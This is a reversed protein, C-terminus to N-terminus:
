RWPCTDNPRRPIADLHLLSEDGYHIAQHTDFCVCVVNEPDFLNDSKNKLDDITLPNLHHIFIKGSINYGDMGLDCANDRIIIDRRFDKWERSLYLQQNLYRYGGFTQEAVGGGIKLYNYRDIFNDLKM